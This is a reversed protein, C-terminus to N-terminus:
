FKVRILFLGRPPACPGAKKRDRAKLIEKMSGPPLKGRGIEILTGVINRIMNYLFSEGEIDIFILPAKRKLSVGWIRRTMQREKKSSASFSKFNHRGIIVKLEREMLSFDLKYPVQWAYKYWFASRITSNYIYYRYIKAKAAFRSNFDLAVEKIKKVAIDKPLLANIAKLVKHVSLISITKFNAIQAKAHVGADTRGSATVKIKEGLILSFKEELVGQISTANKQIQWGAYKTGDYEIELLLNRM